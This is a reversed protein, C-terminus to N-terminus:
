KWISVIVMTSNSQYFLVMTIRTSFRVNIEQIFKIDCVELKAAVINRAKTLLDYQKMLRLPFKKTGNLLPCLANQILKIGVTVETLLDPM